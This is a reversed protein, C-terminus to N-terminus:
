RYDSELLVSKPDAPYGPLLNDKFGPGVVIKTSAPFTSMNGIHDFHYHSGPEILWRHRTQQGFKYSRFYQGGFLV